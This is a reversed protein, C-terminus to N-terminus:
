QVQGTHRNSMRSALFLEELLLLTGLADSFIALAESFIAVAASLMILAVSSMVLAVSLIKPSASLCSSLFVIDALVSVRAVLAIYLM